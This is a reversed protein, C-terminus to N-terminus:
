DTFYTNGSVRSTNSFGMSKMLNEQAKLNGANAATTYNDAM